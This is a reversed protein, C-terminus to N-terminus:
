QGRFPDWGLSELSAERRNSDRLVIGHGRTIEGVAAIRAAGPARQLDKIRKPPVTFLLEYDDGGHLALRELELRARQLKEAVASRVKPHPIKERSLRAGVGSAACLRALDTSLGDSLDMMATPPCRRALWAGLELRAVPYLHRQLLPRAWAQRALGSRVLRLGLEAGGLPGSVYILDGPQAGARTVARGPEIEGVVTISIAVKANRTTDGGILAMKMRRAARAMGGLFGDLWEGTRAAPLALTLLYFRAVGGMAAIDSTARILAKYGVSDPPHADPLFHVGELFADCTLVMETRRGPAVIAADDGIALRARAGGAAGRLGKAALAREIRAVLGEENGM